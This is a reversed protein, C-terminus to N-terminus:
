NTITVFSVVLWWLKPLEMLVHMSTICSRAGIKKFRLIMKLKLEILMRKNTSFSIIWIKMLKFNCLLYDQSAYVADRLLYPKIERSWWL